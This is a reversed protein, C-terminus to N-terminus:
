NNGARPHAKDYFRKLEEFTLHTYIETTSLRKHGLLEKVALLEADNNLMATAFSHRLVHPSRKKVTSVRSLNRRVLRYVQSASVRAGGSTVFLADDCAAVAAREKIYDELVTKLEGVVPVVRQRNRKGLVRLSRQEFDVDGVNLGVLESLRIGTEYFCLIITRDRVGEFGAGFSLEDILLNMEEEKIFSPLVKRRKPGRVLLAPNAVVDGERRMYAYFSRLASLRRCVSSAACGGEMLSAVWLRVVDVDVNSVDLEEALSAVFDEFSRLDGAYARLTHLSYKKENKLYNIFADIFMNTAALLM